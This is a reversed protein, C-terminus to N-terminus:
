GKNRCDVLSGDGVREQVDLLSRHLGARADLQRMNCRAKGGSRRIALGRGM